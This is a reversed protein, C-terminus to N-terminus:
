TQNALDQNNQRPKIKPNINPKIDPKIKPKIPKIRKYKINQSNQDRLNEQTRKPERASSFIIIFNCSFRIIKYNKARIETSFDLHWFHARSNGRNLLGVLIGILFTLISMSTIIWVGNIQVVGYWTNFPALTSYKSSLHIYNM